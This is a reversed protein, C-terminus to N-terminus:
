VGSRGAWVREESWREWIVQDKWNNLGFVQGWERRVGVNLGNTFGTLEVKLLEGSDIRKEDRGSGGSDDSM